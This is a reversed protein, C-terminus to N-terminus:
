ELRSKKGYWREITGPGCFDCLGYGTRGVKAPNQSGFERSVDVYNEVISGTTGCMTSVATNAPNVLRKVPNIVWFHNM